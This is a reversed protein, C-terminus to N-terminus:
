PSRGKKRQRDPNMIAFIGLSLGDRHTATAPRRTASQRETHETQEAWSTQPRQEPIKRQPGVNVHSTWPSTSENSVITPATLVNHPRQLPISEFSGRTLNEASLNTGTQMTSLNTGTQMTSLQTSTNFFTKLGRRPKRPIEVQKEIDDKDKGEVEPQSKQSSDGTKIAALTTSGSTHSEQTNPKLHLSIEKILPRLTALSSSIIGLGPEAASWIALWLSKRFFDLGHTLVIPIYKIRVLSAVFGLTALALLVAINIKEKFRLKTNGVILPVLFLFYLDSGATVAAHTYSLGEQTTDSMCQHQFTRVWFNNGSPDGCHFVVTFFYAFSYTCTAIVVAYTIQRIRRYVIVRLFFFGLSAKFTGTSLVYFSEIAVLV